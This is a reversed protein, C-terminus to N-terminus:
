YLILVTSNEDTVVKIQGIYNIMLFSSIEKKLVFDSPFYMFMCALGDYRFAQVHDKIFIADKLEENAM